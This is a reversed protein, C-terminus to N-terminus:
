GVRGDPRGRAHPTGRCVVACQRGRAGHQLECGRARCGEGSPQADAIAPSGLTAKTVGTVSIGREALRSVLTQANHRIKDLNIELQPFAGCVMDALREPPRSLADTAPIGLEREYRFIAATVETGTM